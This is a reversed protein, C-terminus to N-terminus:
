AGNVERALRRRKSILNRPGRRGDAAREGSDSSARPPVTPKAATWTKKKFPREGRPPTLLQPPATPFSHREQAPPTRSATDRLTM